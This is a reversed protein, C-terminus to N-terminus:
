ESVDSAVAGAVPARLGSFCSLSRQALFVGEFLYRGM